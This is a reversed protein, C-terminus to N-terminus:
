KDSENAQFALAPRPETRQSHILHSIIPLLVGAPRFWICNVRGESSTVFEMMWGSRGNFPRTM